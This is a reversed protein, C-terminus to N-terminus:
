DKLTSAIWNMQKRIYQVFSAPKYLGPILKQPNMILHPDLMKKLSAQLSVANYGVDMEIFQLGDVGIGGNASATGELLVARSYILAVLRQVRDKELLNKPNYVFHHRINSSGLDGTMWCLTETEKLEEHVIKIFEDLRSHPVCVDSTYITNNEALKSHIYHSFNVRHYWINQIDLPSTVWEPHPLISSSLKIDEEVQVKSGLLKLIVMPGPQFKKDSILNILRMSSDDFFEISAATGIRSRISSSLSVADSYNNVYFTCLAEAQPRPKLKLTAETIIGLTGESGVFLETIQCGSSQKTSRNKTQIGQGNPLVLKLSIVQHKTDGYLMSTSGSANLAIMGGISSGNTYDVPFWLNYKALENNLEEWTIGPEVVCDLDDVNVGKIKNMNSLNIIVGPQNVLNQGRNSTRNCQTFVPVRNKHCIKLIAAVDEHTSPFAVARALRGKFWSHTKSYEIIIDADTSIKSPESAFLEALEIIATDLQTQSKAWFYYSTGLALTGLALPFKFIFRKHIPLGPGTRWIRKRAFTRTLSKWM